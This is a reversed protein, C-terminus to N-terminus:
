AEEREKTSGGGLPTMELNGTVLALSARIIMIFSVEADTM